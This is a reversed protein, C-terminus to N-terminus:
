HDADSFQGTVLGYYFGHQAMLEAHTGREIIEGSKLALIQDAERITSLRHAIVFSTRGAMLRQMAEQLHKETRTDVSSTAEDLILIRPDALIARAIALLQRQGQSLNSARESLPTDYGQPLHQIFGHANALAAARIIEEDTAKLRGYRINERVTGSFLFTDQLVIGLQRRLDSKRVSSINQGDVLIRGRDIEYFRTLLNIITTKGAGTPGILAITEGPHAHLSVNKLIPTEPRYSFDVNEFVVEGRLAPLPQADPADIEHTEDMVEFVREAGAIAGQISNYLNAISSLPGGFQRAYTLFSAITGVSAMGRVVLVGGVGAILAIGLNNIGNMMPGIFGSFMQAQTSAKRLSANAQDFQELVQPERRYAKVVRQGGITEEILGNLTGLHVQQARFADRIRSSVLRNLGLTLGSITVMSIAALPANLAFMMIASGALGLLGSVITTVTDTLVQNVNEVDNTLRSMLDGHSRTDFFRLPLRELAAFMDRRIDRVTNQAIGAMLYGQLYTLVSSLLYAALMLGLFQPLGDIQRTLLFRDIARGLLYPGLLNLGSTVAVVLAAIFLPMKRRQLYGWLRQLTARTDRAGKAKEAFNRPGGPGGPGGFGRLIPPPEPAPTTASSAPSKTEPM